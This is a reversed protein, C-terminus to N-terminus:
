RQDLSKAIQDAATVLHELLPPIDGAEFPAKRLIALGAVAPNGVAVALSQHNIGLGYGDLRAQRVNRLLDELDQPTTITSENAQYLRRIEPDPLEALLVLGISSHEAPYLHHSAIGASIDGTPDGHFLYAVHTRWRLGLAVNLGTHQRVTKLWPVAARFLRSGRLSLATLVHLGPGPLYKREPTKEALGMYALTGLLRNIRTHEFGLRRGLERSGVPEEMTALELLCILGDRLSQNVQAPPKVIPSSRPKRASKAMTSSGIVEVSLAVHRKTKAINRRESTTEEVINSAGDSEEIRHGM